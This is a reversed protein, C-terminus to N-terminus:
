DELTAPQPAPKALAAPATFAGLVLGLGEPDILVAVRQNAAFTSGALIPLRLTAGDIIVNVYGGSAAGTAKGFRLTLIAANLRESLLAELNV